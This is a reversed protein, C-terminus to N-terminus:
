AKPAHEKTGCGNCWITQIAISAQTRNSTSTKADPGNATPQTNMETTAQVVDLGDNFVDDLHFLICGSQEQDVRYCCLIHLGNLLYEICLLAGVFLKHLELRM